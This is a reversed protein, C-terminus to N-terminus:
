LIYQQIFRRAYQPHILSREVTNHTFEIKKREVLELPEFVFNNKPECNIFWYQTPKNYYDGNESRDYDIVKPKLCWYNTLYHQSSYPNEIILQLGGRLCVIALKSILNYNHSLENQLKMDYELKKIDSHKRQGYADGRFYLKIQDEFRICPFFAIILDYYPVIKDFISKEFRYAKEIEEYLDIVYDTEGFDNKIDYDKAAFGFKKFEKKFTGSQEFLLHATKRM